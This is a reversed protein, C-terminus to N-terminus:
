LEMIVVFFTITLWNTSQMSASIYVCLSQFSLAFHLTCYFQGHYFFCRKVGLYGLDNKQWFVSLVVLEAVNVGFFLFIYIKYFRVMPDQVESTEFWTTFIEHLKIACIPLYWCEFNSFSTKKLAPKCNWIVKVAM